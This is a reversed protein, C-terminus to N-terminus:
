KLINKNLLETTRLLIYVIAMWVKCSWLYFPVAAENLKRIREMKYQDLIEKAM